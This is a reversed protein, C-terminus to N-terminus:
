ANKASTMETLATQYAVITQGELGPATNVELIYFNGEKDEIIDVAGFHLGLTQIAKIALLDRDLSTVINKRQFIFGNDHSRVKWSLPEKTPDRVKQQTDVVGWRTAHLRYERVKKIYKTYLPAELLVEGPEIIITGAGSHGTLLTRVVITAGETQWEQAIAKNATWPVCSIQAGALSVFTFFKNTALSVAKPTNVINDSWPIPKTTGWNIIPEGPKVGQGTLLRKFGPAQSLEKASNSPRGGTFVWVSM